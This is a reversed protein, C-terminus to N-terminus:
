AAVLQSRPTRKPTELKIGLTATVIKPKAALLHLLRAAAGSPSREGSEWKRVTGISAGLLNAFQAQTLGVKLRLAAVDSKAIERRHIKLGKVAKGQAHGRAENLGAMIKKFAKTM